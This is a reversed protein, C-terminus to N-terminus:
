RSLRYRKTALLQQENKKAEQYPTLATPSYNNFTFSDGGREKGTGGGASTGVGATAATNYYTQEAVQAKGIAEYYTATQSTKSIAGYYGGIQGASKISEYDAKMKEADDVEASIYTDYLYSDRQSKIYKNKATKTAEEATMGQRIYDNRALLIDTKLTGADGKDKTENIEDAHLSQYLNSGVNRFFETTDDYWKQLSTGLLGDIIGLAGSFVNVLGNGLGEFISVGADLWDVKSLAEFIKIVIDDINALLDPIASVLGEILALILDIGVAIFEPLNDLFSGTLQPIIETIAEIIKPAAQTLGNILGIFLNFATDVVLPLNEIIADTVQEIIGPLMPTLIEIAENLGGILGTFLTVAGDIVIPVLSPIAKVFENVLNSLGEILYPLLITVTEPLMEALSGFLSNFGELFAPLFDKIDAQLDNALEKILRNFDEKSKAATKPDFMGSFAKAIDPIAKGVKDTFTKFSGAFEVAVVNKAASLNGKMIDVSDNFDNLDNLAEQSLILGTEKASDGLQKLKESGGLILPNLEQASKGFIQMALNDRQTENEIKGLADIIEGFVEENNRLEGTVNDRLSVGLTAFAGQVDKSSSTMNKTLKALSKSITEVDVDILNEAYKFKQLTETDIGTQKSLTNIDDAYQAADKTASVIAKGAATAATAYATLAASSAKLAGGLVDAGLKAAEEAAKGMAAALNKAVNTTKKIAAEAKEVGKVASEPVLDTLKVNSLNKLEKKNTKLAEESKKLATESSNLQVTFGRLSDQAKEIEKAALAAEKSDKGFEAAMAEFKNKAKDYAEASDKVANKLYEVKQKQQEYQKALIEGQAKLSRMSKENGEFEATTKKMESNLVRLEGNINKVAKKYQEEGDLKFTTKIEDNAM